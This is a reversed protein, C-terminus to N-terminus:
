SSAVVPPLAPGFMPALIGALRALSRAVFPLRLAPRFRGLMEVAFAMLDRTAQQGETRDQLWFLVFALHAAYLLTTMEEAQRGRPADTAGTVVKQFVRWIRGRTGGAAGGLVALESDPSLGVAYLAGFADRFPAIRRLDAELAKGFRAALPAPSLSDVEEELEGALREYLALVLEEKRAFYRYTLGLSSGAAAAIDRLTTQQYGKEAFLRLATGLLHERTREGKRGQPKAPETTEASM